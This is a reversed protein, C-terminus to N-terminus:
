NQYLRTKRSTLAKKRQTTRQYALNSSSYSSDTNDVLYTALSDTSVKVEGKAWEDEALIIAFPAGLTEAEQVRRM